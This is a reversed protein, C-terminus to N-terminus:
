RGIELVVIRRGDQATRSALPAAGVPHWGNSWGIQPHEVGAKIGVLVSVGRDGAIFSYARVMQAGAQDGYPTSTIPSDPHGVNRYSGVQGALVSEIARHAAVYAAACAQQVPGPLEAHLGSQSHHVGGVGFARDLAGLTFFM